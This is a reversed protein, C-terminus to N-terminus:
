VNFLIDDWEFEFPNTYEIEENLKKVAELWKDIESKLWNRITRDTLNIWLEEQIREAIQKSSLWEQKLEKVYNLLEPTKKAM